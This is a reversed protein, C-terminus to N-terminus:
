ALRRGRFPAGLAPAILCVNFVGALVPIVGVVAIVVGWIGQVYIGIGILILGALVRLTRGAGGAMWEAFAMQQEGGQRNSPASGAFSAATSGLAQPSSEDPRPDAPEAPPTAALRVAQLFSIAAV